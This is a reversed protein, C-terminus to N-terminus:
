SSENPGSSMVAASIRTSNPENHAVSPFVLERLSLEPFCVSAQNLNQSYIVRLDGRDLIIQRYNTESATLQILCGNQEFLSDLGDATCSIRRFAFEARIEGIHGLYPSPM